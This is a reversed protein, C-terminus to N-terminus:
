METVTQFRDFLSEREGILGDMPCLIAPFKRNFYREIQQVDLAPLESARNNFGKRGGLVWRFGLPPIKPSKPLPWSVVFDM